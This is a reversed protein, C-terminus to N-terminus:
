PAGYEEIEKWKLKRGHVRTWPGSLSKKGCLELKRRHWPTGTGRREAHEFSPASANTTSPRTGGSANSITTAARQTRPRSNRQRSANTPQVSAAVSAYSTPAAPAPTKVALLSKTEGLKVKLTVLEAHLQQIISNATNLSCWQCVFPKSGKNMAEFQQKTVGACYQHVSCGCSGECKLTDQEKELSECCLDCTAKRRPMKTKLFVIIHEQFAKIIFTPAALSM